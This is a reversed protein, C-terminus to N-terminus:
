AGASVVQFWFDLQVRGAFTKAESDGFFASNLISCNREARRTELSISSAAYVNTQHCPNCRWVYILGMQVAGLPNELERDGTYRKGGVM